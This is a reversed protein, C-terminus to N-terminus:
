DYINRGPLKIFLNTIEEPTKDIDEMLWQRILFYAAWGYSTVALKYETEDKLDLHKKLDIIQSWAWIFISSVTEALRGDAGASFLVSVAQKNNYLYTFCQTMREKVPLRKNREFIKKIEKAHEWGIEVLIDRPTEYHNYFTARNVQAERCLESISLKDISTHELCRLLGEKMMRKSIIVRMNEKSM